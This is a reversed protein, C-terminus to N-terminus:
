WQVPQHTQYNFRSPVPPSADFVVVLVKIVLKWGAGRYERSRSVCCSGLNLALWSERPRVIAHETGPQLQHYQKVSGLLGHLRPLGYVCQHVHTVCSGHVACGDPVPQSGRLQCGEIPTVRRHGFVLRRSSRSSTAVDASSTFSAESAKCKYIYMEIM